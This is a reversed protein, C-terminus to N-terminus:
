DEAKRWMYFIMNRELNVLVSALNEVLVMSDFMM